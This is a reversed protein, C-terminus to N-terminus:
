HLGNRLAGDHHHQRRAARLGLEKEAAQRRLVSRETQLIHRLEEDSHLRVDIPGTLEVARRMVEQSEYFSRKRRSRSMLRRWIDTISMQEGTM